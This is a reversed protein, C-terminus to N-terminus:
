AFIFVALGWVTQAMLPAALNKFRLMLISSGIGLLFLLFLSLILQSSGAVLLAPLHLLSYLFAVTSTLFWENKVVTNLRNLIFGSFLLQEWFATILGLIIFGGFQESTFGHITLSVQGFRIFSGFAGVLSLALGLAIGFYVAAFLRHRTIGLTQWSFGEKVAGLWLVPLGFVIAKLIIEEFWVPFPLLYLRYTGWLIFVFTYLGLVQHWVTLRKKLRWRYFVATLKNLWAM